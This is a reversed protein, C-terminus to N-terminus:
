WTVVAPYLLGMVVFLVDPLYLVFQFGRYWMIIFPCYGSLFYQDFSNYCQPWLFM